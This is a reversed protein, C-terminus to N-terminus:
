GRGPCAAPARPRRRIMCGGWATPSGGPAGGSSCRSRRAPGTRSWRGRGLHWPRRPTRRWRGTTCGGRGSRGRRGRRGGRRCTTSTRGRAGAGRAPSRRRRRGSPRGAGPSRAPRSRPRRARSPWRRPRARRGGEGVQVGRGDQHRVHVHPRGVSTRVGRGPGTGARGRGVQGPRPAGPRRGLALHAEVVVVLPRPAVRHPQGPGDDEVVDGPRQGLDHGRGGDPAALVQAVEFAGTIKAALWALWTSM